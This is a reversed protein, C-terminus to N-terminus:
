NRSEYKISRIHLLIGAVILLLGGLLLTNYSSLADIRTLILTITGIIILFIGLYPIYKKM